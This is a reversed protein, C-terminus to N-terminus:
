LHSNIDYILNDMLEGSVRVKRTNRIVHYFNQNEVLIILSCANFFDKGKQNIFEEELTNIIYDQTQGFGLRFNYNSIQDIVIV